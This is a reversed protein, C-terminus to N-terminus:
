LIYILLKDTWIKLNYDQRAEEM